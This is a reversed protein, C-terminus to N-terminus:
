FCCICVYRCLDPHKKFNSFGEATQCHYAPYTWPSTLYYYPTCYLIPMLCKSPDAKDGVTEPLFAVTYKVSFNSGGLKKEWKTKKM